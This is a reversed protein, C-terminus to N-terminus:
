EKIEIEPKNEGTVVKEDIVVKKHGKVSPLSYMVETMFSEVIARIGRAGTKRKIALDAVADLAEDTFILEADDLKLMETYQRIISNKPETIIRRIDERTLNELSVSIPLRGIFEPILGFKILDDPLLNDYLESLNKEESQKVDAGFGMPHQSIRSEIIKDLGM